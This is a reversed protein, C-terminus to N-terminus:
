FRSNRSDRTHSRCDSAPVHHARLEVRITHARSRSCRLGKTSHVRL